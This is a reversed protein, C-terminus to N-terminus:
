NFQQILRTILHKIFQQWWNFGLSDRTKSLKIPGCNHENTQRLDVAAKTSYLLTSYNHYLEQLM